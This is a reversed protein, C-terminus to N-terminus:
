KLLGGLVARENAHVGFIATDDIDHNLLSESVAFGSGDVVGESTWGDGFGFRDIAGDSKSLNRMGGDVDDMERGFVSKALNAFSTAAADGGERFGARLVKQERDVFEPPGAEFAGFVNERRRKAFLFIERFQPVAEFVIVQLNDGGVVTREAEFVLLSEAFVVEGFNGIATGADFITELKEVM